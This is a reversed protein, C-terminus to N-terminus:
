KRVKRCSCTFNSCPLVGLEELIKKNNAEKISVLVDAMCRLLPCDNRSKIPLATAM